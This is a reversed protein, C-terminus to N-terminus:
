PRTHVEKRGIRLRTRSKPPLGLVIMKLKRRREVGIGYKIPPDFQAALPHKVTALMSKLGSHWEKAEILRTRLIGADTIEAVTEGTERDIWKVGGQSIIHRCIASLSHGSRRSDWYHLLNVLDVLHEDPLSRPRGRKRKM